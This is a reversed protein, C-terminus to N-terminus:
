RKRKVRGARTVARAERQAELILSEEEATANREWAGAHALELAALDQEIQRQEWERVRERIFESGSTYRGAEIERNIMEAQRKTLSVNMTAVAM